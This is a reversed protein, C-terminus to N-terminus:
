ARKNDFVLEAEFLSNEEVCPPIHYGNGLAIGITGLRAIKFGHSGKDDSGNLNDKLFLLCLIDSFLPFLKIEQNKRWPGKTGM